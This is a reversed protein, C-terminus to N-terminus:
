IKRNANYSYYARDSIILHDAFHIRMLKCSNKICETLEDDNKSPRLNGSPHNHCVALITANCLVAERMIIRIDVSTETIGGQSIKVHKILRYSNNMLLIHFQEVELDMMKPYMYNFIRTPTSMDPRLEANASQRRRGLEVAAMIKCATQTGVGDILELEDFRSKGLTNLNNNFRNLVRNAINKTSYRMSRGIIIALLEADTLSNTGSRQLRETLKDQSSWRSISDKMNATKNM